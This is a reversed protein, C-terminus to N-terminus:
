LSNLSHFSLSVKGMARRWYTLYIKKGSPLTESPGSGLPVAVQGPMEARGSSNRWHGRGEALVLMQPAMCHVRVPLQSLQVSFLSLFHQFLM